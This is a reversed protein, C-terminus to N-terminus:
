RTRARSSRTVTGPSELVLDKDVTDHLRQKVAVVMDREAKIFLTEAGPTDNLTIEHIAAAGL